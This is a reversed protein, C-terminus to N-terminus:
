QRAGPRNFVSLEEFEGELADLPCVHVVLRSSIQPIGKEIVLGVHRDDMHVIVPPTLDPDAHIPVAKGQLDTEFQALHQLLEPRRQVGADVVGGDKLGALIRGGILLVQLKRNAIGNRVEVLGTPLDLWERLLVPVEDLRHLRAASRFERLLQLRVVDFPVEADEIVPRSLVPMSKQVDRTGPRRVAVGKQTKGRPDYQLPQEGRGVVVQFVIRLDGREFEGTPARSHVQLRVGIEGNVYRDILRRWLRVVGVSQTVAGSVDRGTDVHDDQLELFDAAALKGLSPNAALWPNPRTM